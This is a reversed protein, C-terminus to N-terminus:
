QACILRVAHSAYLPAAVEAIKKQTDHPHESKTDPLMWIVLILVLTIIIAYLFGASLQDQPVPYIKKIGSKIADNWSLAVVLSLGAIAYHSTKIKFAQPIQTVDNITNSM